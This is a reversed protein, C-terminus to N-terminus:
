GSSGVDPEMILERVSQPTLEREGEEGIKEGRIFFFFFPDAWWVWGSVGFLHM